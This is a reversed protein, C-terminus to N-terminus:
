SVLNINRPACFRVGHIPENDFRVPLQNVINNMDYPVLKPKYKSNKLTPLSVHKEYYEKYTRNFHILQQM